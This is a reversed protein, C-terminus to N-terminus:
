NRIDRRNFAVVALALLVAIVVLHYAIGESRGPWAGAGEGGRLLAAGQTVPALRLVWEARPDDSVSTLAIDGVLAAFTAGGAFVAGGFIFVALAGSMGLLAGYLASSWLLTLTGDGYGISDLGRGSLFWIMSVIVSSATSVFLLAGGLLGGGITRALLVKPRSPTFTLQTALAGSSFDSAVYTIVIAIVVLAMVMVFGVANNLVAQWDSPTRLYDSIACPTSASCAGTRTAEALAAAARAKEEATLPMAEPMWLAPLLVGTFFVLLVSWTARRRYRLRFIEARLLDVIM